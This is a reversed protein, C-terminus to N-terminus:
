KVFQKIIPEIEDSIYLEWSQLLNPWKILHKSTNQLKQYIYKIPDQPAGKLATMATTKGRALDQGLTKGSVSEHNSADLIDDALQYAIGLDFGANRLSNAEDIDGSGGAVAAFAFLSGTKFKAIKECDDWTGPNGRLVLEQEAESRCVEGTMHILENLLDKRPQNTLLKISRFMLMDGFLIAGNTGYKKWFTKANRRLLGNDIVDDHILSASHMIDVAAGALILIEKDTESTLGLYQILKSRLMKGSGLIAQNTLIFESLHTKDLVTQMTKQVDKIQEDIDKKNVIMFM